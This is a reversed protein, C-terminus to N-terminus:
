RRSASALAESETRRAWYDPHDLLERELIQDRVGEDIANQEAFFGELLPSGPRVGLM